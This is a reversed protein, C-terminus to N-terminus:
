HGRRVARARGGRGPLDGRHPGPRHQGGAARQARLEAHRGAFWQVDPMPGGALVPGGGRDGLVGFYDWVSTGSSGPDGVSWQWLKQYGDLSLGGGPELAGGLEPGDLDLGREAKLWRAYAALQTSRTSEATPEWLVAGYDPGAYAAALAASGAAPASQDDIPM